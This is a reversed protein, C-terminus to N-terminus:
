VNGLKRWMIRKYIAFSALSGCVCAPTNSGKRKQRKDREREREREREGGRVVGDNSGRM